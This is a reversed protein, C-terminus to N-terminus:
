KLNLNFSFPQPKRGVSRFWHDFRMIWNGVKKSFPIEKLEGGLWFRIEENSVSVAQAKCVQEKLALAVPCAEACSGMGLQIHKKTVRIKV